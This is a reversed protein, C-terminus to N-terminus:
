GLPIQRFRRPSVGIKETFATTFSSETRYGVAAAIAKIPLDTTKLLYKARDMRLLVIYEHPSHQTQARFLRILHAPSFHVEDALRQLSLPEDLHAQIFHCAEHVPGEGRPAATQADPMLYCLMSHLLRSHEADQVPQNNTYQSVLFRFLPAAREARTGSHVITGHASTLHSCLDFSNLGAAHMWYFEAYDPTDYSQPQNGDLLVLDGAHATYKQNQYEVRMAGQEILLFLLSDMRRQRIKYGTECYYRGCCNVYYFLRRTAAGVTNFFIESGPLVGTENQCLM